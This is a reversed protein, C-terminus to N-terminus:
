SAKKTFKCKPFSSCGFFDGYKGRKLSLASGCTPCIQHSDQPMPQKKPANLKTKLEQVHKTKIVKKEKKDAIVLQDLSQNMAALEEYSFVPYNQERIVRLLQPTQIVRAERFHDPFQLTSRPSFVVISHFNTLDGQSLYDKVSHMHGYNQWIPNYLKEKRKYIVQTWYKRDEEGFIWGKYNKTEIVFIGYPSTVIHDVQVTGGKSAPVYIDHYVKYDENLSALTYNVQREGMMGKIEPYKVGYAILGVVLSLMLLAPALINLLYIGVIGLFLIGVVKLFKNM